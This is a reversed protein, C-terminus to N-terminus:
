FTGLLQRKWGVLAKSSQIPLESTASELMRTPNGKSDIATPFLEGLACTRNLANAM